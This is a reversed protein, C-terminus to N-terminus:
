SGQTPLNRRLWILTAGDGGKHDPAASYALIHPCYILWNRLASRLVSEGEPSRHGKGHICLIIRENQRLAEDICNSLAYFASDLTDGHLDIVHEPRQALWKKWQARGTPHRSWRNLSTNGSSTTSWDFLANPKIERTSHRIAHRNLRHRPPKTSVRNAYRASLPTVQKSYNQWLDTDEQESLTNESSDPHNHSTASTM